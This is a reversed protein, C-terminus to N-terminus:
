NFLEPNNQVIENRQNQYEVADYINNNAKSAHNTGTYNYYRELYDISQKLEDVANLKLQLENITTDIYQKHVNNLDKYFNNRVNLLQNLSSNYNDGASVAKIMSENYSKNNLLAVSQNYDKDGQVINSSIDPMSKNISDMSSDIFVVAISVSM